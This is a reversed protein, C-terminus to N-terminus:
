IKLSGIANRLGALAQTTRHHDTFNQYMSYRGCNPCTIMSRDTFGSECEARTFEFVCECESCEGTLVEQQTGQQIIKM